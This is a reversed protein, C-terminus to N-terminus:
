KSFFLMSASTSPYGHVIMGNRQGIRGLPVTLPEVVKFLADVGRLLASHFARPAIMTQM